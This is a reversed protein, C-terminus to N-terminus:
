IFKLLLQRCVDYTLSSKSLFLMLIKISTKLHFISFYVHPSDNLYDNKLNFFLYYKCRALYCKAIWFSQNEINGRNRNLYLNLTNYYKFAFTLVDGKKDFHSASVPLIRYVSTVDKLFCCKGNELFHCCFNLDGGFYAKQDLQPIRLFLERRAFITCTQLHLQGNIFASLDGTMNTKSTITKKLGDKQMLVQFGTSCVSYEPHTEMFDYQRQLKNPDIWYDDGECLAIYKGQARPYNYVMSVKVGKSYQNETQYIPKIIDPYKAEYERIIDATRDTSADDHILVEFPFDTKQMLFGELCDRIYPEHNYTICCVSVMPTTNM